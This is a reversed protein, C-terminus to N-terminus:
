RFPVKQVEDDLKVALPSPLLTMRLKYHVFSISFQIENM